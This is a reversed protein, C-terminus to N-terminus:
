ESGGDLEYTKEFIDHKCPYFEGKIGKIIYDGITAKLPGEETFIRLDSLREHYSHNKDEMFDCVNSYNDGSWRIAQIVVPLKRYSNPKDKNM